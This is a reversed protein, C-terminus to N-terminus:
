GPIPRGAANVLHANLIMPDALRMLNQFQLVMGPAPIIRLLSKRVAPGILVAGIEM